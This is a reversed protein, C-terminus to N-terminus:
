NQCCYKPSDCGSQCSSDSKQYDTAYFGKGKFKLGTGQILRKSPNSCEPCSPFSDDKISQRRSFTHGCQTCEYDYFPM